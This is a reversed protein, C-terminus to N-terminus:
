WRFSNTSEERKLISAWVEFSGPSIRTDATGLSGPGLCPNAVHASPVIQEQNAKVHNKDRYIVSLWKVQCCALVHGTEPASPPSPCSIKSKEQEFCFFWAQM